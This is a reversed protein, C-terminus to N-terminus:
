QCHVSWWWVLRAVQCPECPMGQPYIELTSETVDVGQQQQEAPQQQGAASGAMVGDGGCLYQQQKCVLTHAPAFVPQCARCECESSEQPVTHRLSACQKVFSNSTTTDPGLPWRIARQAICTFCTCLGFRHPLHVPQVLQYANSEWWISVEVTCCVILEAKGLPLRSAVCLALM